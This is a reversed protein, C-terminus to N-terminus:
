RGRESVHIVGYMGLTFHPPSKDNDQFGCEVYYQRGPLFNINLNGLATEGTRSHLVGEGDEFLAEVDGKRKDVAILSDLTVGRKFLSVNIEHRQRGSNRFAITHVGPSLKHPFKLYAYDTAVISDAKAAPLKSANRGVHVVKYMGMEYHHLANASDRFICQIGYDRGPLLDVTLSSPARHGPDAFLVGVAGEIMPMQPKGEKGAAIVDEIKVGSKLLFVNFEHRKKGANRFTLTTRGAPLTSPMTFAYDVGVVEVTRSAATRGETLALLAFAPLLARM